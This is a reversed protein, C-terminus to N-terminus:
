RYVEKRHAVRLILVDDGTKTFIVRYNGIEIRFLGQYEGKLAKVKSANHCTGKELDDLIQERHKPHIKELDKFVSKKFRINEKL